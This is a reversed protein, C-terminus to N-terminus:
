AKGLVALAGEVARTAAAMGCIVRNRERVLRTTLFHWADSDQELSGLTAVPQLAPLPQTPVALDQDFRGCRLYNIPILTRGLAMLCRNAVGTLEADPAGRQLSAIRAQFAQVATKLAALRETVPSLDFRDTAKAALDAVIRELEEVVAEYDFPLVASACLRYSLLAYIETDRRLFEPDIKDVTDDPTHWWFGLGGSKGHGGSIQRFLAALVPDAAEPPQESLSM